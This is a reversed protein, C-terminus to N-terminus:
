QEVGPIPAGLVNRQEIAAEECSVFPGMPNDWTTYTEGGDPLTIIRMNSAMSFGLICVDQIDTGQVITRGLVLTAQVILINDAIITPVLPGTYYVDLVGASEFWGPLGAPTKWRPKCIFKDTVDVLKTVLNEQPFQKTTIDFKDNIPNYKDKELINCTVIPGVDGIRWYLLQGNFTVLLKHQSLLDKGPMWPKDAPWGPPPGRPALDLVIIGKKLIQNDEPVTKVVLKPGFASVSLASVIPTSASLLMSLILISAVVPILYKNNM